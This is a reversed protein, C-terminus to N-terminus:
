KMNKKSKIDLVIYMYNFYYIICCSSFEIRGLTFNVNLWLVYILTHLLQSLYEGSMFYDVTLIKKRNISKMYYKRRSVSKEM